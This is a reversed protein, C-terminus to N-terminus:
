SAAARPSAAAGNGAPTEDAEILRDIMPWFREFRPDARWERFRAQQATRGEQTEPVHVAEAFVEERTAPIIEVVLVEVVKGILSKLQPLRLTESEIKTRIHIPEM